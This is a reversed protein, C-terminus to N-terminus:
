GVALNARHAIETPVDRATGAALDVAIVQMPQDYQGALMDAITTVKNAGEDDVIFYPLWPM